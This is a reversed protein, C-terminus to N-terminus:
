SCPAVKGIYTYGGYIGNQNSGSPLSGGFNISQMLGDADAHFKVKKREPEARPTSLEPSQSPM